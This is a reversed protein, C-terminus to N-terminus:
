TYNNGLVKTLAASIHLTPDNLRRIWSKLTAWFPEIPNLDPSYAPLFLLGIGADELAQAIRPSKHFTANDWIVVDGKNLAPILMEKVWTIVVETNCYGKFEMPAIAEGNKLGGILSTRAFRKGTHEGYLRQGRKAYGYQRILPADFGTEDV